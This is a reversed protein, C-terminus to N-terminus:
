PTTPAHRLAVHLVEDGDQPVLHGAVLVLIDVYQVQDGLDALM